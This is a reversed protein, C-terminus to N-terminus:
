RAGVYHRYASIWNTAIARQAELLPVRHECVLRVMVTELEDKRDADWGDAAQRPEPWLNRPDDSSGGADLPILHDEEYSRLRRDGYGYERIQHRKLAETYDAPPRVTRTWGRVCITADITEETVAPNIAGPTLRPDPLSGADGVLVLWTAVGLGMALNPM